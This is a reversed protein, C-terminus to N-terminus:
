RGRWNGTADLRLPLGGVYAKARERGPGAPWADLFRRQAQISGYENRVHNCHGHEHVLVDAVWLLGPLRYRRAARRTAQPNIMSLCEGDATVLTQGQVDPECFARDCLSIGWGPAERRMARYRDPDRRRIEELARALLHDPTDRGRAPWPRAPPTPPRSPVPLFKPRPPRLLRSRNPGEATAARGFALDVGTAAPAPPARDAAAPGASAVLLAAVVVLCPRRWVPELLRGIPRAARM